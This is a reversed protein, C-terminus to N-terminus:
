PLPEFRSVLQKFREDARLGDFIPEIRILVLGPHRSEFAKNLYEIAHDNDKLGAYVIAFYLGSVYRKRAVSELSRLISTAESRRGAMAYAFGLSASAEVEKAVVDEPLTGDSPAKILARLESIAEPYMHRQVYALGLYHRAVWFDPDTTLIKKYTGIAEDYNHEYYAYLGSNSFIIPSLPDLQHAQEIEQKAHDFKAMQM